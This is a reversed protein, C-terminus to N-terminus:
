YIAPKTPEAYYGEPIKIGTVDEIVQRQMEITSKQIEIVKFATRNINGTWGLLLALLLVLVILVSAFANLAIWRTMDKM